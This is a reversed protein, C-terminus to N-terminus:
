VGYSKASRACKVGCCLWRQGMGRNKRSSEQKGQAFRGTQTGRAEGTGFPCHERGRRWLGVKIARSLFDNPKTSM